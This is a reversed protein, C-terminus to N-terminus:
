SSSTMAAKVQDPSLGQLHLMFEEMEQLEDLVGDETTSITGASSGIRTKLTPLPKATAQKHNPRKGTSDRVPSLSNRLVGPDATQRRQRNKTKQPPQKPWKPNLPRKSKIKSIVNLVFHITWTQRKM